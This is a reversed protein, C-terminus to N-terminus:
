FKSKVTKFCVVIDGTMMEANPELLIGCETGMTAEKIEDKAHKLATIKGDHVREGRRLIYAHYGKIIKNKTVRCGAIFKKNTLEFVQRVEAEGIIEEESTPAVLGLLAGEIEEFMEYIIKYERVLIENKEAVKLLSPDVKINFALIIGGRTKALEIDSQSISGTRSELIKLSTGPVEIKKLSNLIAELSGAADAVIIINLKKIEEEAKEDSFFAALTSRNFQTFAEEKQVNFSKEKSIERAKSEEKYTRVIEGVELVKPIGVFRVPQSQHAENITVNKDDVIARIKGYINGGVGFEGRTAVGLKVIVTAVPGINKDMFSELVVSESTFDVNSVDAFKDMEGIETVLNILELLKDINTGNKASVEVFPINGGYGEVLVGNTALERKVKDIDAGPADIKNIAIILDTNMKKWLNIVEKTQPMVGDDAAVVLVVIDTIKVGRERMAFFAEHGPTDIFTIPRGEFEVQYARVHQTIGGFERDAVNTKRIYDLLTTKGHDVHGMITVVPARFGKDKSETKVTAKAM